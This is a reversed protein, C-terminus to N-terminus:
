AGAVSEGEATIGTRAGTIQLNGEKWKEKEGKRRKSRSSGGEKRGGKRKEVGLDGAYPVVNNLESETFVFVVRLMLM